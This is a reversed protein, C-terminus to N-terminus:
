SFESNLKTSAASSNYPQPIADLSTPSAALSPIAHQQGQSLLNVINDLKQELQGVRVAEVERRKRLVPAQATCQLEMRSCRECRSSSGAGATSAPKQSVCKGKATACNLCARPHRQVLAVTSNQAKFSDRFNM